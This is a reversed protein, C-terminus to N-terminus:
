TPRCPSVLSLVLAYRIFSSSHPILFFLPAALMPLFTRGLGDPFAIARFREVRSRPDEWMTDASGVSPLEAVYSHGGLKNKRIYQIYTSAQCRFWHQIELLMLGPRWFQMEGGVALM